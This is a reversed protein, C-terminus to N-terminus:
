WFKIEFPMVLLPRGLFQRLHETSFLQLLEEAPEFPRPPLYFRQRAHVNFAEIEHKDDLPLHAMEAAKRIADVFDGHSDVLNHELAQRGTWVRGECIADLDDIDIHRGTAVVAKFRKYTEVVGDWLVQRDEDNLPAADSGLQARQGKSITVRNVDFKEFLEATTVHTTLVGISGTITTPQAMIHHVPTAVYYGGSAAANGMFGLVPKKQAIRQVQRWILDSAL